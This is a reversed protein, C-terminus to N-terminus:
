PECREILAQVFGVVDAQIQDDPGGQLFEAVRRPGVGNHDLFDDRLVQLARQAEDDGLLPLLCAAVDEVGVGFNRVVYYLDYADKNEGRGLFALAKLVVFAGAGCVWVERAAKEGFITDGEILIRQRDQFALKLGPTILAAFDKEINRLRGGRDTPLSPPILFDVTVPYQGTLRWRQRTPQGEENRDPTFGANRLRETLTRYRGKDLLALKLGV